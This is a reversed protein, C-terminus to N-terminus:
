SKSERREVGLFIFEENEGISCEVDVSWWASNKNQEQKELRWGGNAHGAPPGATQSFCTGNRTMVPKRRSSLHAASDQPPYHQNINIATGPM